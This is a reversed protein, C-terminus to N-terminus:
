RWPLRWRSRSTARFAQKLQRRQGSKKLRELARNVLIRQFHHAVLATTVPLLEEFARAVEAPPPENGDTGKRVHDDFLDIARDVTKRMARDHQMALSLMKTMPFGHELLQMAGRAAQVDGESYSSAGTEGLQGGALGSREISRLIGEPIGVKAALEEASYTASSADRTLAYRLIKDTSTPEEDTPELVAAIAKLSFGRKAMDRISRLRELHSEDYLAKRGQREPAHLLGIQRYYRITDVSFGTSSSLETVDIQATSM